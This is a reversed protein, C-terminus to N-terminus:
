GFITLTLQRNQVNYQMGTVAFLRGARFRYNAIKFLVPDGLDFTGEFLEDIHVTVNFMHRIVNNIRLQRFAEALADTSSTMLSVFDRPKAQPHVTLVSVDSAPVRQYEQALRARRTITVAGALDTTQVTWLKNYGYTVLYTPIGNYQDDTAVRVQSIIDVDSNRAAYGPFFRTLTAVPAPVGTPIVFRVIRFQGFRDFGWWAGISQSLQNLVQDVNVQQDVWLGVTASNATDLAAIDAGLIDGLDTQTINFDDATITELESNSRRDSWYAFRRLYMTGNQGNCRWTDGDSPNANAPTTTIEPTDGGTAYALDSYNYTGAALHVENYAAAVNTADFAVSSGNYVYFDALSGTIRRLAIRSGSSVKVIEVPSIEAAATATADIVNTEALLTGKTSSFWTSMTTTSIQDAGRAVAIAVTPIYSTVFDSQELQAGWAIFSNGSVGASGDSAACQIRFSMPTTTSGGTTFKIAVRCFGLPASYVTASISTLTTSNNSVTTATLDSTNVWITYFNSVSEFLNISIQGLNNTKLFVSFVYKTSTSVAISQATYGAAGSALIVAATASNDPALSQGSLTANSLSWGTGGIVASRIALNTAAPEVLLGRAPPSVGPITQVASTTALYDNVILSPELQVGWFYIGSAGDGTYTLSSASATSYLGFNLTASAPTTVVGVVRFWGNEDERLRLGTVTFGTQTIITFSRTVLNVNISLVLSGDDFAFAGSTRDKGKIYFSFAYTTAVAGQSFTQSVKHVVNAASETLLQATLGGNPDVTDDTSSITSGSATWVANTLTQSYLVLNTVATSSDAPDYELRFTNVAATHILGDSGVYTASGTRAISLYPHTVGKMFDFVVSAGTTLGLFGTPPLGVGSLAMLDSDIRRSPYYALKRIWGNWYTGVDNGIAMRTPTVPVTASTTLTPSAGDFSSALDNTNYAIAVQIPEGLTITGLSARQQDASGSRVLSKLTTTNSDVYATLINNTSADDISAIVPSTSTTPLYNRTGEMYFTGQQTNGYSIDAPTAYWPTISSVSCVDANRVVSASTTPVYSTPFAGVELQAGWLFVEGTGTGLYSTSGGSALGVLMRTSAGSTAPHGVVICRFWDDGYEEIYGVAATGTGTASLVTISQDSLDFLCGCTNTSTDNIQIHLQTITSAKVFISASWTQNASQVVDTRINHAASAAADILFKPITTGDPAVGTGTSITASSKTWNADSFDASPWAYNTRAEEILLGRNELTVPDFDFRPSNGTSRLIYGDAGVYTAVTGRTYTIRSDLTALASLFNFAISAGPAPNPATTLIRQIIQGVTRHATTSGETVDATIQGAPTSGLRILGYAPLVRYHSATPANAVLDAVDTYDSSATLTLGQDYVAAVSSIAGDKVQFALLSTNVLVAPVNLVSGGYLQPKPKGFLDGFIGEFGAPLANNGLYLNPQLPQQLDLQRDKIRISIQDNRSNVPQEMTGTMIVVFTTYAADSDGTLIRFPRGALGFSFLDDRPGPSDLDPAQNALVLEGWGVKSPGGTTNTAFIDRRFLLAQLICSDYHGPASPHNYGLQTSYRLTQITNTYTNYVTIEALIITAM